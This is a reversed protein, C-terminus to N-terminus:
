PVPSVIAWHACTIFGLPASSSRSALMGCPPTMLESKAFRYNSPHSASICGSTTNSRYASSMITCVLLGSCDASMRSLILDLSLFNESLRLSSFVLTTKQQRVALNWLSSLPHGTSNSKRPWVNRGAMLSLFLFFIRPSSRCIDIWLQVLIVM